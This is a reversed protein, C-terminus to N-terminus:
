GWPHIALVLALNLVLEALHAEQLLVDRGNASLRSSLRSGTSDRPFGRSEGRRPLEVHRHGHSYGVFSGLVSNPGVFFPCRDGFIITRARRGRFINGFGLLKMPCLQFDMQAM